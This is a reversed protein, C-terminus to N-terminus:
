AAALKERLTGRGQMRTGDSRLAWIHFFRHSSTSTRRSTATLPRARNRYLYPIGVTDGRVLKMVLMLPDQGAALGYLKVVNPHKLDRM